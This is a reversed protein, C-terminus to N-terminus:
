GRELTLGEAIKQRIRRLYRAITEDRYGGARFADRWQTDSLGALMRSAWRVDSSTISHHLLDAHVGDYDFKVFGDSVGTM